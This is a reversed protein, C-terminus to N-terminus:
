VVHSITSLDVHAAFRSVGALSLIKRLIPFRPSDSLIGCMM